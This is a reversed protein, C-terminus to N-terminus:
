YNKKGLFSNIFDQTSSNTNRKYWAHMRRTSGAGTNSGGLLISSFTISGNGSSAKKTNFGGFGM